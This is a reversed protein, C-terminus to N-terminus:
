KNDTKPKEGAARVNIFKSLLNFWFNSSLQLALATIFIGLLNLFFDGLHGDRFDWKTKFSQWDPYGFSDASNQQLYLSLDNVTKIKSNIDATQKTTDQNLIIAYDSKKITIQGKTSTIGPLQSVIKDVTQGMQKKNGLASQAIKITDLNMAFAIIFGVILLIMNMNKKYIGSTRDMANNYLDELKKQFKDLDNQTQAAIDVLVKKFEVPLTTSNIGDQLKATTFNEASIEGIVATVFNEAPIYSPYSKPDRMLSQIHPSQILRNKVFEKWGESFFLNELSTQLQKPRLKRASAIAESITSLILSGVFYIFSLLIVLDLVPSSFM